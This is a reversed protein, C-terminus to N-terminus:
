ASHAVGGRTGGGREVSVAAAGRVSIYGWADRDLDLLVTNFRSVAHFLEALWDHCEIQTSYPTYALGLRGEVLRRSLAVWDVGTSAPYAVVHANFSGM